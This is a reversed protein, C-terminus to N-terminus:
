FPPIRLIAKEPETGGNKTGSVKPSRYTLPTFLAVGSFPSKPGVAEFVQGCSKIPSYSISPSDM